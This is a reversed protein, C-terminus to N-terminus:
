LYDPGFSKPKYRKPKRLAIPLEMNEGQNIQEHYDENNTAELDIEVENQRLKEEVAPLEVM